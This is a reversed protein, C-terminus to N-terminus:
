GNNLWLIRWLFSKIHTKDARTEHGKLVYIMIAQKEIHFDSPNKIYTQHCERKSIHSIQGEKSPLSQKMEVLREEALNLHPTLATHPLYKKM